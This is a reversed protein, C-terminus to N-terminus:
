RGLNRPRPTAAHSDRAARQRIARARAVEAATDSGGTGDAVREDPDNLAAETEGGPTALGDVKLRRDQQFRRLGEDLARDMTGDFPVGPLPEYYGRRQLARKLGYVDDPASRRGNRVPGSLKFSGLSM